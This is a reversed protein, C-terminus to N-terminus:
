LLMVPISNSPLSAGAANTAKIHYELQVGRPQETLHADNNLSTGAITWNGFEGAAMQQRREVIYNAVLGGIAPKEWKLDIMGQGLAIPHVELPQGPVTLPQPQPQQRTGWGIEALKEPDSSTDVESVKLDNKMLEVLTELKDDKTVTAIQAQGRANEQTQKSSRYAALATTLDAVAVSPFDAAHATLGAVMQDALAAVDNEKLPFQSM